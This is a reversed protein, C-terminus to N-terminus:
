RERNLCQYRTTDIEYTDAKFKLICATKVDNRNRILQLATAYQDKKNMSIIMLTASLADDPYIPPYLTTLVDGPRLDSWMM